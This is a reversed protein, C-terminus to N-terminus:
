GRGLSPGELDGTGTQGRGQDPRILGELPQSGGDRDRQGRGQDPRILGEQSAEGISIPYNQVEQAPPM